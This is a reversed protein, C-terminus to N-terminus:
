VSKRFFSINRRLDIALVGCAVIGLAIGWGFPHWWGTWVMALAGVAEIAFGLGVALCLAELADEVPLRTLLAGGPILCAAALVLLLRAAGHAELLCVAVTAVALLLLLFEATARRRQNGLWGVQVEDKTAVGSFTTSANEGRDHDPSV